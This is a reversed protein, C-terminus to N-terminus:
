DELFPPPSPPLPTASAVVITRLLNDRIGQPDREILTYRCMPCREHAELWADLCTRCFVHNCVTIAIRATTEEADGGYPSLCIRCDTPHNIELSGLPLDKLSNVYTINTNISSM